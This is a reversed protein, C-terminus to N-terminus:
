TAVVPTVRVSRQLCSQIRPRDSSTMLQLRCVRQINRVTKENRDKNIRKLTGILLWINHHYVLYDTSWCTPYWARRTRSTKTSLEVWEWSATSSWLCRTQTTFHTAWTPTRGRQESRRYTQVTSTPRDNPGSPRLSRQTMMTNTLRSRWQWLSNFAYLNNQQTSTVCRIRLYLHRTSVNAHCKSHNIVRSPGCTEDTADTWMKVGRFAIAFM